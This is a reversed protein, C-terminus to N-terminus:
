PEALDRRIQVPADETGRFRMRTPTLGRYPMELEPMPDVEREGAGVVSVMAGLEFSRARVM